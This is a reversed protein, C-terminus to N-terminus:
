ILSSSLKRTAGTSCREESVFYTKKSDQILRIEEWDCFKKRLQEETDDLALAINYPYGYQRSQMPQIGYHGALKSLSQYFDRETKEPKGCAQVTQAEQLKPLFSCKLFGNTAGNDTGIETQRKKNRRREKTKADLRRVRGITQAFDATQTTTPNQHHGIHHQRAYNM